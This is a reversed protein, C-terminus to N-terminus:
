QSRKRRPSSLDFGGSSSTVTQRAVNTTVSRVEVTAGGMPLASQDRLTGSVSGLEFQALATTALFLPALALLSIARNVM